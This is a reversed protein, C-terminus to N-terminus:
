YLVLRNNTFTTICLLTSTPHLFLLTELPLELPGFHHLATVQPVLADLCWYRAHRTNTVCINEQDMHNKGKM